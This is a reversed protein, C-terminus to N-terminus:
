PPLSPVQFLAVEEMPTDDLLAGCPDTFCWPEACEAFTREGSVCNYPDAPTSAVSM